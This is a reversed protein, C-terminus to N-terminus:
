APILDVSSQFEDVSKGTLALLKLFAEASPTSVGIEWSQLTTVPIGLRRAMEARSINNDAKYGAITEQISQSLNM